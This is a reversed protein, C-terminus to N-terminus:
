GLYEEPIDLALLDERTRDSKELVQQCVFRMQDRPDPIRRQESMLVTLVEPRDKFVHWVLTTALSELVLGNAHKAQQPADVRKGGGRPRAHLSQQGIGVVSGDRNKIVCTCPVNCYGDEAVTDRVWKELEPTFEVDMYAGNRGPALYQFTGTRTWVEYDKGLVRAIITGFLFDTMAYLTGGFAAGHMNANWPALKLEVRAARWDQSIDMIRVGSGALPPWANMTHRLRDPSQMAWATITTPLRAISKQADRLAARPNQLLKM